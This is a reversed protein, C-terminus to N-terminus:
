SRTADAVLAALDGVQQEPVGLIRGVLAEDLRGQKCVELLARLYRTPHERALPEGPEQQLWGHKRFSAWWRRGQSREILELDMARHLCASMSLGWDHKLAYFSFPVPDRTFAAVFPKRPALLAGAFRHCAKEVDMGAALRDGIVLHGLEHALTFRQRDGPWDEATVVVPADGYWGSLGDFYGDRTRTIFTRVGHAELVNTLNSVPQTGLGWTARLQEAANEVGAADAIRRAPQLVEFAPPRLAAVLGEAEFRAQMAIQVERHIRNKSIPTMRGSARYEVNRRGAGAAGQLYDETVQLAGALRVLVEPSPQMVDREYKSLAMASVGVEAALARLTRGAARRADYIRTRM